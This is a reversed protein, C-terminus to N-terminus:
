MYRHWPDEAFGTTPSNSLQSFTHSQNQDGSPPAQVPRSQSPNFGAFYQFVYNTGNNSDWYDNGMCRFNVCMQLRSGVRGAFVSSADIIFSFRDSFGDATGSLYQAVVNHQSSWDNTTYRVSVSKHFDLNVVRVVGKIKKNAQDVYASELSVKRDRLNNLMSPTGSPQTFLPQLRSPTAKAQRSSSATTSSSASSTAQVSHARPANKTSLHRQHYNYYNSSSNDTGSDSDLDSLEANKLDQFASKPVKPIDDCITKIESLDLGFLDAFRVIKRKGPSGPPTKGSKLSSCRRYKSNNNNSESQSTNNQQQKNVEGQRNEKNDKDASAEAAESSAEDAKADTKNEDSETPQQSALQQDSVAAEDSEIKVAEELSKAIHDELLETAAAAQNPCLTPTDTPSDPDVVVEIAVDDPDSDDAEDNSVTFTIDNAEGLSPASESRKLGVFGGSNRPESNPKSLQNSQDNGSTQDAPKPDAPKSVLFKFNLGPTKKRVPMYCTAPMSVALCNNNKNQTHHTSTLNEVDSSDINIRQPSHQQGIILGPSMDVIDQRNRLNERMARKQRTYGYDGRGKDLKSLLALLKSNAIKASPQNPQQKKNEKNVPPALTPPVDNSDVLGENSNIVKDEDDESDAPSNGGIGGNVQNLQEETQNCTTTGGDELDFFLEADLSDSGPSGSNSGALHNSSVKESSDMNNTDTNICQHGNIHHGNILVSTATNSNNPTPRTDHHDTVPSRGHSSVHLGDSAMSQQILRSCRLTFAFSPDGRSVSPHHQDMPGNVVNAGKQSTQRPISSLM